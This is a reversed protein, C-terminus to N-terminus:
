WGTGPRRSRQDHGTPMTCAFNIVRENAGCLIADCLTDADRRTIVRQTITGPECGLCANGSVRQNAGCLIADCVTDVGSADDGPDDLAQRVDLVSITAYPSM